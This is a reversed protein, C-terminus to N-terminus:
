VDHSSVVYYGQCEKLLLLFAINQCLFRGFSQIFLRTSYFSIYIVVLIYHGFGAQMTVTYHRIIFIHVCQVIHLPSLLHKYIGTCTM